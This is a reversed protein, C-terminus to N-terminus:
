TLYTHLDLVHSINSLWVHLLELPTDAMPNYTDYTSWRGYNFTTLILMEDLWIELLFCLCGCACNFMYSLLLCVIIVNVLDLMHSCACIKLLAFMGCFGLGGVFLRVTYKNSSFHIFASLATLLRIFFVQELPLSLCWLCLAHIVIVNQYPVTDGIFRNHIYREVLSTKGAFSKGLLVVKIDVKGGSM